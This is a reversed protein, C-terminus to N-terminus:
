RQNSITYNQIANFFGEANDRIDDDRQMECLYLISQKKSTECSPALLKAPFLTIDKVSFWDDM